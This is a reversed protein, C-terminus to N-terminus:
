GQRPEPAPTLVECVTMAPNSDSRAEAAKGFIRACACETAQRMSEVVTRGLDNRSRFKVRVEAKNATAAFSGAVGTAQAWDGNERQVTVSDSENRYVLLLRIATMDLAQGVGKLECWLREEDLAAALRDIQRQVDVEAQSASSRRMQGYGLKRIGIFGLVGMGILILASQASNAV